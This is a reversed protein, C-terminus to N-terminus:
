EGKPYLVEIGQDNLFDLWDRPPERDTVIRSLDHFGCMRVLSPALFKTHDVLLITERANRIALRYLHASEMDAATIGFEMSMGDAGLFMRFGRLQELTSVALPGVTDLTDARFSGGLLILSMDTGNGLEVALRASNVIASLGRLRKLHPAMEFCTTGSDILLSEGETVLSAALRGIIRKSEVNRQAKSRFSFDSTRPLTAGGYVLELQGADALGRLDRRITAESVAMDEALDKVTAHGRDLVLSLIRARRQQSLLSM